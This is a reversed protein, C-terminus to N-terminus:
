TALSPFREATHRRVQELDESDDLAFAAAALLRRAQEELLPAATVKAPPELSDLVLRFVELVYTCVSPHPAAARRIEAFALEVIGAHDIREGFVVVRGGHCSCVQPPPQRSLFERVLTALHFIADQATTPDNVGPSLARIAVDSLQRVAYSPDETLSRTAGLQIASRALEAAHDADNPRPSITCLPAGSLAYRGVETTLRVVGGEDAAGALKEVAVRQIWGGERFRVDLASRRALEGTPPPAISRDSEDRPAWTSRLTGLGQATATTLLESVEVAHANHNIFAIVVLISGIGFIVALAVSLNPIVPDGGDTPARVARLVILCYTFTGVVVGIARKNFRDRFIGQVIRPSYQSSALQVTLLSISFAIGAFTITAAAITSLVARASDVTGAIGTVPLDGTVEVRDDVEVTVLGLVLSFLVFATPVFFLSVRVREAIM